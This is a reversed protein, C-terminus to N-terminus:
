KRVQSNGVVTLGARRGEGGATKPKAGSNPCIQRVGPANHIFNDEDRAAKVVQNRTGKKERERGREQGGRGADVSSSSQGADGELGSFAEGLGGSWEVGRSARSRGARKGRRGLRECRVVDICADKPAEPCLTVGRYSDRPGLKMSPPFATPTTRGWGTSRSPSQLKVLSDCSTSPRRSADLPFFDRM